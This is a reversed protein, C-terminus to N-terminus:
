NYKGGTQLYYLTNPTLSDITITVVKDIKNFELERYLSDSSPEPTIGIGVYIASLPVNGYKHITLKARLSVSTSTIDYLTDINLDFNDYTLIPVNNSCSLFFVLLLIIPLLRKM